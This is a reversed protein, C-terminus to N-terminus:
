AGLLTKKGTTDAPGAVGSGGTLMTGAGSRLRDRVRDGAGQADQRQPARQAAMQAPMKPEDQPAMEPMQFLCM